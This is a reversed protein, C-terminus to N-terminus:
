YNYLFFSSPLTNHNYIHLQAFSLYTYTKLILSPNTEVKERWELFHKLQARGIMDLVNICMPM